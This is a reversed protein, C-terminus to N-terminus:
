YETAGARHVTLRCFQWNRFVVLGAIDGIYVATRFIENLFHQFIYRSSLLHTFRTFECSVYVNTLDHQVQAIILYFNKVYSM